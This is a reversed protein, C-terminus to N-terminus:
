GNFFRIANISKGSVADENLDAQQADSLNIPLNAAGVMSVNAPAHWVNLERDNTAYVGAIGGSPPLINADALVHKM